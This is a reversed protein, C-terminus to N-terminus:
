PAILQRLKAGTEPNKALVSRWAVEVAEDLYKKQAAPEFALPQIGAKEQREREAANLAVNEGDLAELWLASDELLKRQRVDLKRWVALNVLVNVEVAYFGPDLRYKTVEHWGLDFIGAVPWGYGDVV